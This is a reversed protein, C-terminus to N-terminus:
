KKAPLEWFRLTVPQKEPPNKRLEEAHLAALTRRKLRDEVLREKNVGYYTHILTLVKQAHESGKAVPLFTPTDTRLDIPYSVDESGGEYVWPFWDYVTDKSEFSSVQTLDRFDINSVYAVEVGDRRVNLRTFVPQTDYVTAIVEIRDHKKEQRQLQEVQEVTLRATVHDPPPAMRQLDPPAIKIVTVTREGMQVDKRIKPPADQIGSALSSSFIALSYILVLKPKM